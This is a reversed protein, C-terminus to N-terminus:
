LNFAAESDDSKAWALKCEAEMAKDVMSPISNEGRLMAWLAYYNSGDLISDDISENSPEKGRMLQGLRVIKTAEMVMAVMEPSLGCIQGVLKFNSLRDEGAYDNGKSLMIEAQKETFRKFFATQETLTM